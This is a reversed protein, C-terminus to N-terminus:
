RESIAAAHASSPGKRECTSKWAGGGTPPRRTSASCTNIGFTEYSRPQPQRHKWRPAQSSVGGGSWAALDRLDVGYPKAPGDDGRVAERDSTATTAVVYIPVQAASAIASVEGATLTSSTDFGDTIVVLAAHASLRAQIRKATHAVMDYLSTAGFPEIKPLVTTLHRFERTFPQRKDVRTDFSFLAAEDEGGRMTQLAHELVQQALAM